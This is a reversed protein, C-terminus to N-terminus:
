VLQALDANELGELATFLTHLLRTVTQDFPEHIVDPLYEIVSVEPHRQGFEVQFVPEPPGLQAHQPGHDM